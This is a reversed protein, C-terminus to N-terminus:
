LSGNDNGRVTKENCTQCETFPGPHLSNDSVATHAIGNADICGALNVTPDNPDPKATNVSVHTMDVWGGKDFPPVIHDALEDDDWSDLIEVGKALNESIQDNVGMNKAVLNTFGRPQPLTTEHIPPGNRQEHIVVDAPVRTWCHDGASDVSPFRYYDPLYPDIEMHRARSHAHFDNHNTFWNVCDDVSCKFAAPEASVKLYHGGKEIWTPDPFVRERFQQDLDLLSVLNDNPTVAVKSGAEITEEVDVHGIPTWVTLRLLKAILRKWWPDDVFIMWHSMTRRLPKANVQEPPEVPPAVYVSGTQPDTM